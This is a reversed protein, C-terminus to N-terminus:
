ERVKEDVGDRVGTIVSLIDTESVFLKNTVGVSVRELFVGVTLEIAVIDVVIDCFSVDVSVNVKVCDTVAERDSGHRCGLTTIEGVEMQSVLTLSM